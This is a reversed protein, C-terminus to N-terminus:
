GYNKQSTIPVVYIGDERKYAFPSIGTLVMLFLPEKMKITDISGAVTKLTKVGDEILNGGGSGVEAPGFNGNRLHIVYSHM